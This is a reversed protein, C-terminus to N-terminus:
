ASENLIRRLGAKPLTDWGNLNRERALRRMDQVSAGDLMLKLRPIVVAGDDEFDEPSSAVSPSETHYPLRHFVFSLLNQPTLTETEGGWAQWVSHM